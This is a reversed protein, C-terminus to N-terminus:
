YGAIIILQLTLYILYSLTRRFTFSCLLLFNANEQAKKHDVYARVSITIHLSSTPTNTYPWYMSCHKSASRAVFEHRSPSPIYTNKVIKRREWQYGNDGKQEERKNDGLIRTHSKIVNDTLGRPNGNHVGVFYSSPAIFVEILYNM